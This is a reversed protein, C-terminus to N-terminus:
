GPDISGIDSGANAETLGYSGFLEGRAVRAALMEKQKPTGILAIPTWGLENVQPIMSM